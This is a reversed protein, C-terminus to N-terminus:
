LTRVFRGWACLSVQNRCDADKHVRRAYCADVRGLGLRSSPRIPTMPARQGLHPYDALTPADLDRTKASPPAVVGQYRRLLASLGSVFRRQRREYEISSPLPANMATGVM